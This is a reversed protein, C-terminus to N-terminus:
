QRWMRRFFAKDHRESSLMSPTQGVVDDLTYGTVRTFSPNVYEIRARTDTIVISELSAEVVQEVLALSHRSRALVHDRKELAADLEEIYGQEIGAIIDRFGLLGIIRR